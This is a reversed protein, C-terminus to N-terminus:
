AWIMRVAVLTQDFKLVWMEEMCVCEPAAQVSLGLLTRALLATENELAGVIEAAGAANLVQEVEEIQVIQGLRVLAEVQAHEEAEVIQLAQAFQKDEEALALQKTQM